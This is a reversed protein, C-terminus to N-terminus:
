GTPDRQASRHARRNREAQLPRGSGIPDVGERGVSTVRVPLTALRLRRPDARRAVSGTASPPARTTSGSTRNPRTTAPTAPCRPLDDHRPLGGGPPRAAPRRRGAAGGLRGRLRRRAARRLRLGAPGRGGHERHEDSAPRTTTADARLGHRRRTGRCTPRRTATTRSTPGSPKSGTAGTTPRRSCSARTPPGTAPRRRTTGSRAASRPWTRLAGTPTTPRPWPPAPRPPPTSATPTTRRHRTETTGRRDHRETVEDGTDHRETVERDTAEGDTDVADPQVPATQESAMVPETTAYREPEVITMEAPRTRPRAAGSAARRSWTTPSTTPAAGVPARRCGRCGHHRRSGRGQGRSGRGQRRLLRPTTVRTRTTPTLPAAGCARDRARGTTPDTSDHGTDTSDHGRGDVRSGRGHHGPGAGRAPCPDRRLCGRWRGAAATAAQGAGLGDDHPTHEATDTRSDDSMDSETGSSDAAYVEGGDPAPAEDISGTPDASGASSPRPTSGDSRRVRDPRGPVDDRFDAASAIRESEPNSEDDTVAPGPRPEPRWRAPRRLQLAPPSRPPPRRPRSEGAAERAERREARTMPLRRRGARGRPTGTTASRPLLPAPRRAPAADTSGSVAPAPEVEDAVAPFASEKVDPDIDDARRLTAEYDRQTAEAAARHEAAEAELRAAESAKDEAEVRALEARQAAQDAFVSQGAVTTAMTDADARLGAAEVRQADRQASGRRLVVLVIVVAILILLLLLILRAATM